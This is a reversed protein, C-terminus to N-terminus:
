TFPVPLGEEEEEVATTTYSPFEVAEELWPAEPGAQLESLTDEPLCAKSSSFSLHRGPTRIASFVVM